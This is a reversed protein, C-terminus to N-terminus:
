LLRYQFHEKIIEHLIYKENFDKQHRLINRESINEHIQQIATPMKNILDNVAQCVMVFGCRNNYWSLADIYTHILLYISRTIGEPGAINNTYPNRYRISENGDFSFSYRVVL